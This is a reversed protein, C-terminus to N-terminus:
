KEPVVVTPLKAATATTAPAPPLPTVIVTSVPAPSNTPSAVPLSATLATLQKNKPLKAHADDYGSSKTIATPQRIFRKAVDSLAPGGSWPPRVNPQVATGITSHVHFFHHGVWNPFEDFMHQIANAPDGLEQASGNTYLTTFGSTKGDPSIFHFTHSSPTAEALEEATPLKM